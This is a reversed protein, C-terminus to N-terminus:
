KTNEKTNRNEYDVAAHLWTALALAEATTLERSVDDPIAVTIKGDELTVTTGHKHGWEQWDGLDIRPKPLATPAPETLETSIDAVLRSVVRYTKETDHNLWAAYGICDDRNEWWDADSPETVHTLQGDDDERLFCDTETDQLAYEYHLNHTM